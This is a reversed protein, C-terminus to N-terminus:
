HTACAICPDYARILTKLKQEREKASMKKTKPLYEKLDDELNNLFQATPTIIQCKKIIGNKDLEYYHYLTGRPAEVAGLGKGAKIKFSVAAPAAPKKILIKLDKEIQLLLELCEVAQAAVNYFSNYIPPKDAFQKWAKKSKENLFKFNNNIRAIAGIMYVKGEGKALAVPSLDFKARKVMEKPFEEEKFHKFFDALPIVTKKVPNGSKIPSHCNSAPSTLCIDGDYISYEKNKALGEKALAEASALAKAPLDSSLCAFNTKRQFHPYKLKAFFKILSEADAIAKDIENLSKQLKQKDPLKKFGGVEPTLNHVARASIIKVINLAYDRLRVAIATEKPFKKIFKLDNSFNEALPPDAKPPFFDPGSLFFLHLAHSHIIQANELIKRLIITQESVKVGFAKEIAKISTLMHVIPCIGCIRSTLIPAEYYPRGVLMGEILRAGELTIIKARAIDGNFLAGEFSFHGETKAIHNISIRMSERKKADLKAHNLSM